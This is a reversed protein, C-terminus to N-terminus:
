SPNTNHLQPLIRNGNISALICTKSPNVFCGINTGLKKMKDCSFIVDELPITTSINDKHAFLHTIGGFGDQKLKVKAQEQLSKDLPKLVLTAFILSHPCGRNVGEKM